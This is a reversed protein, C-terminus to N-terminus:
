SEFVEIGCYLAPMSSTRISAFMVLETNHHRLLSVRASVAFGGLLACSSPV